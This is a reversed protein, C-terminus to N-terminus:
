FNLILSSPMTNKRVYLIGSYGNRLFAQYSPIIKFHVLLVVKNHVSNRAVLFKQDWFDTRWQTFRLLYMILLFIWYRNRFLLILWHLVPIHSSQHQLTSFRSISGDHHWHFIATMRCQDKPLVENNFKCIKIPGDLLTNSKFQFSFFFIYFM